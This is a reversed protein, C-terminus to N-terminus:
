WSRSRRRSGGNSYGRALRGAGRSSSAPLFASSRRDPSPLAGVTRAPARPSRRAGRRNRGPKHAVLGAALLAFLLGAGRTLGRRGRAVRLREADAWLRPDGCGRRWPNLTRYALWAFAALGLISLALPVWRLLEITPIGFLRASRPRASCPPLRTSSRSASATTHPRRAPGVPRGGPHRRDDGAVARRRRGRRRRRRGPAVRVLVGIALAVGLAFREASSM